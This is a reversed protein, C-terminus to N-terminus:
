LKSRMRMKRTRAAVRKVLTKFLEAHSLTPDKTSEAMLTLISKSSFSWYLNSEIFYPEGKPSVRVDFLSFDRAGLAKHATVALTDMKARLMRDMACNVTSRANSHGKANKTFKDLNTRIPHDDSLHYEICPLTTYTTHGDQGGEIVGIRLERGLAIYEEVVVEQDYKLAENVADHLADQTEVLSIGISNDQVCPKVVVPYSMKNQQILLHIDRIDMSATVTIGTPIPVGSKAVLTRASQKNNSVKMTEASSGVFAINLDDLLTRYVETGVKDYM